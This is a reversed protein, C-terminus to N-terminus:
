WIETSSPMRFAPRNRFSPPAWATLSSPHIGSSVSARAERPMGTM